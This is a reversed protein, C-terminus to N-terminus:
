DSQNFFKIAFFYFIHKLFFTKALLSLLLKKIDSIKLEQTKTTLHAFM